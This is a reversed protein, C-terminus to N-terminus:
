RSREWAERLRDASSLPVPAAGLERGEKFGPGHYDSGGTPILNWRSATKLLDLHTNRDYEGYYVEIGMLGAAVLRAVTGEVDGTSLPHALVPIAGSARLLRVSDEPVNRSRPVFAPRGTALYRDFAESVTDVYGLEIMARAVHPRGVSGEGAIEMVRNWELPIGLEALKAVIRETRALRQAALQNLTSALSEDDPDVFYGLIHIEYHGADTSLEVGPIVDLGFQNVSEIVEPLGALTDHDTLALVRLGRRAAEAVLAAPTLTGDSYTSHTHLDVSGIQDNTSRPESM